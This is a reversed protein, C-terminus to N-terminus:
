PMFVMAGPVVSLLQGGLRYKQQILCRFVSTKFINYNFFFSILRFVVLCALLFHRLYWSFCESGVCWFWRKTVCHWDFLVHVFTEFCIRWSWRWGDDKPRAQKWPPSSFFMILICVGTAFVDVPPATYGYPEAMADDLLRVHCLFDQWPCPSLGPFVPRFFM